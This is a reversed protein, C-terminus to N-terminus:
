KRVPKLLAYDQIKRIRALQKQAEEKKGREIDSFIKTIPKSLRYAKRYRGRREGKSERVTIWGREQFEHMATSVETQHLDLGRELDRSTAEDTNALFVLIKAINRKIGLEFLLSVLEKEKDTLYHVQEINM